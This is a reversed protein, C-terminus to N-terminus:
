GNRHEKSSALRVLTQGDISELLGKLPSASGEILLDVAGTASRDLVLVDGEGLGQLEPLPIACRGFDVTVEISQDALGTKVPVMKPTKRAPLRRKVIAIQTEESLALKFARKGSRLVIEWTKSRSLEVPGEIVKAPADKVGELVAVRGLLDDIAAVALGEVVIRDKPQISGVPVTNGLMASAIAIQANYTLAVSAAGPLSRWRATANANPWDDQFSPTASVQDSKLWHKSWDALIRDIDPALRAPDTADSPLWPKPNSNM